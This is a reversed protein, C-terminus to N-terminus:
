HPVSGHGSHLVPGILTSPCSGERERPAWEYDQYDVDLTSTGFLRLQAQSHHRVPLWFGGFERYEHIFEAPGPM